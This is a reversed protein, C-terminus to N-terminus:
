AASKHPERAAAEMEPAKVQLFEAENGGIVALLFGGLANQAGVVLLTTGAVAPLVSGIPGYSHRSWYWIVLALITLGAMGTILGAALMTELSVWSTWRMPRRRPRRYGERVGYLHTAAAFLSLNHALGLMAGALIVWYNGLVFTREAGLALAVAALLLIALGCSALLAAPAAFIGTPSLMLLYRLHRWGDRWPRLHSGRGRRDRSLTAPRQTIREGKLAAKIVMESAFEMGSGRLNLRRHCGKTLARLGCHADEIGARFLLNLIGTLVPNGIYRNKWPMAGAAIGGQFRSGMCLDAGSRLASVMAVADRFDYSGDADGMVLYRGRAARFGGNLAAGYGRQSVVVVRAGAASAVTRSEDLSGNDAVIIEGKLAQTESLQDLAARATALAAPLAREENLCPIVISVDIPSASGASSTWDDRSM